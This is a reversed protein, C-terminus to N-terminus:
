VSSSGVPDDASTTSTAQLPKLAEEVIERFQYDDAVDGFYPSPDCDGNLISELTTRRQYTVSWSNFGTQPQLEDRGRCVVYLDIFNHLLKFISYLLSCILALIAVSLIAVPSRAGCVFALAAGAVVSAIPKRLSQEKRKLNAAEYRLREAECYLSHGARDLVLARAHPNTKAWKGIDFVRNFEKSREELSKDTQQKGEPFSFLTDYIHNAAKECQQARTKLREVNALSM